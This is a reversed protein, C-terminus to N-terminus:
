KGGGAAVSGSVTPVGGKRHLDIGTQIRAADRPGDKRDGLLDGPDAVMAALNANQACTFRDVPTNNATKRPDFSTWPECVIPKAEYRGFTILIPANSQGQAQYPGSSIKSFDVGGLFLARQVDQAVQGATQSNSANAPVSVVINGRGLRVYEQAFAKLEAAEQVNLGVAGSPASVAMRAEVPVVEPIYADLVTRKLHAQEVFDVPAEEKAAHGGGCAGLLMLASLAVAMAAAKGTRAISANPAVVQNM